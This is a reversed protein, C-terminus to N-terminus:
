RLESRKPRAIGFRRIEEHEAADATVLTELLICCGLLSSCRGLTLDLGRSPSHSRQLFASVAVKCAAVDGRAHAVVASVAEVGAGSHFLSSRGVTDPTIDLEDSFCGDDDDMHAQARSVWVDALALLVPDDRVGALRYLAYAIGAAGYNLSSTPPQPLGQSVLPGEFGVRRLVGDLLQPAPAMDGRPGVAPVPVADRIAGLREAVVSLDPLRDEPRKSLCKLLLHELQPWPRTNRKAFPLPQEEAIQGLLQDPELSFDVYHSGTVLLYLLAAVAYQEGLATAPPSPEGARLAQAYEPELFFAIGGRSARATRPEVSAPMVAYGFDIITVAGDGDVLINRPHVDGHVVGVAHLRAYANAISCCINLLAQRSERGARRAEAAAVEASVGPRWELLLYAVGARDGAVLVRPAVSGDLHRLIAEEGRMQQLSCAGEPANFLKLAAHVGDETRVLHVETDELVQVTALVLSGEFLDGVKLGSQASTSADSTAVVLVQNDILRQLMPFAEELTAEADARHDRSYSVIADVIRTPSRFRQLLEASDRDLVRVPARSMTRSLAYDGEDAGLQERAAMPLDQVPTFVVDPQLVFRTTIDESM